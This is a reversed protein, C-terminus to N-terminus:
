TNLRVGTVPKESEASTICWAGVDVVWHGHQTGLQQTFVIDTPPLLTVETQHDLLLPTPANPEHCSIM